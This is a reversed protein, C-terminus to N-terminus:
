VDVVRILNAALSGQDVDIIGILVQATAGNGDADYYLQGTQRNFIIHQDANQAVAGAANAASLFESASLAGVGLVAEMNGNFDRIEIRDDAARFDLVTRGPEPHADVGQYVFAFVDDGTGGTATQRGSSLYMTDNGGDGFMANERAGRIIDNGGGGHLDGDFIAVLTDNGGGGFLEGDIRSNLELYNAGDNGRGTLNDGTIMLREVNNSLTYNRNVVFVTDTGGNNSEVITDADEILTYRDDGDGGVLRDGGAGGYLTDNGAGGMLVDGGGNGILTDNGNLGELRNDRESGEIYDNSSNHGFGNINNTNGTLYLAEIHGNLTFTVSSRVIDSVGGGAVEIVEDNVNDVIYIDNGNGGNMDDAGAGGDILDNGDGGNLTDNGGLGYIEDNGATGNITEAANTGNFIAM